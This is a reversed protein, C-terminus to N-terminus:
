LTPGPTAVPSLFSVLYSQHTSSFLLASQAESYEPSRALECVRLGVELICLTLLQVQVGAKNGCIFSDGDLWQGKQNKVDVLSM